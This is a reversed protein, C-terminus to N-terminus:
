EREGPAAAHERATRSGIVLARLQPVLVQETNMGLAHVEAEFRRLEYDCTVEASESPVRPAFVQDPVLGGIELRADQVGSQLPAGAGGQDVQASHPGPAKQRREIGFSGLFAFPLHSPTRPGAQLKAWARGAGLRATTPADLDVCIAARRRISLEVQLVHRRDPHPQVEAQLFATGRGRSSGCCTSSSGATDTTSFSRRPTSGCSRVSSSRRGTPERRRSALSKATRSGKRSCPP